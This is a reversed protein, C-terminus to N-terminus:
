VGYLAAFYDVSSEFVFLAGPEQSELHLPILPKNSNYKAHDARM